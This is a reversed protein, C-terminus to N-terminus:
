IENPTADPNIMVEAEFMPDPIFWKPRFTLTLRVAGPPLAQSACAPGGEFLLASDANLIAQEYDVTRAADFAKMAEDMFGTLELWSDFTIVYAEKQEMYFKLVDTAHCLITRADYGRDSLENLMKSDFWLWNSVGGRITKAQTNCNM